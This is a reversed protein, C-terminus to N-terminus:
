SKGFQPLNLLVKLAENSQLYVTTEETEDGNDLCLLFPYNLMLKVTLPLTSVNILQLPKEVRDLRDQPGQTIKVKVEPM